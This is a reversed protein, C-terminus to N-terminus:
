CDSVFGCLYDHSFETFLKAFTGTPAPAPRSATYAALARDAAAVATDRAERLAPLHPDSPDAINAKDYADAAAEAKDAARKFLVFEQSSSSSMISLSLCRL